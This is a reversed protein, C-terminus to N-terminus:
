AGNKNKKIIFKLIETFWNKQIYNYSELSELFLKRVGIHIQIWNLNLKMSKGLNTNQNINCLLSEIKKINSEVYLQHFGLGGFCLPGHVVAKPFSMEYGCLRTFETTAKQQIKLLQTEEL